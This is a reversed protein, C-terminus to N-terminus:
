HIQILPDTLFTKMNAGMGKQPVQDVAMCIVKNKLLAKYLQRVGNILKM